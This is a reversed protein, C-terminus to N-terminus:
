RANTAFLVLILQLLKMAKQILSKQAVSLQKVNQLPAQISDGESTPILESLLGLLLSLDCPDFDTGYFEAVFNTKDKECGKGQM